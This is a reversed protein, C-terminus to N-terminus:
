TKKSNEVSKELLRVGASTSILTKLFVVLSDKRERENFTIGDQQAIGELLFRVIDRRLDFGLGVTEKQPFLKLACKRREQDYAAMAPNFLEALEKDTRSAQALEAFAAFEPTQLQEWAIDIAANLFNEDHPLKEMADQYMALRRRTVHRIIAHLLDKRSGFHYLMASRTIGARKAVMTTSLKKHGNEALSIMGANLIRLRTKRSRRIEGENLAAPDRLSGGYDSDTKAANM